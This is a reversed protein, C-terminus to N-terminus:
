IAVFIEIIVLLHNRKRKTCGYTVPFIGNYKIALYINANQLIHCLCLLKVIITLINNLFTFNKIM